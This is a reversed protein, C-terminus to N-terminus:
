WVVIFSKIKKKVLVLSLKVYGDPIISPFQGTPTFVNLAQAAPHSITNYQEGGEGIM